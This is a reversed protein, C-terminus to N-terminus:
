QDGKILKETRYVKEWMTNNCDSIVELLPELSADYLLCRVDKAVGLCQSRAMEVSKLFTNPYNLLSQPVDASPLVLIEKDVKVDTGEDSWGIPSELRTSAVIVAYTPFHSFCNECDYQRGEILWPYDYVWCWLHNQM